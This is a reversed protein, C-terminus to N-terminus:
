RGARHGGGRCRGGRSAAGRRRGGPACGPPAVPTFGGSRRAGQHRPARRARGPFPGTRPTRDACFRHPAPNSSRLRAPRRARRPVARPPPWRARLRAPNSSRHSAPHRARRAAERPPPWRRRGPAPGAHRARGAAPARDGGYPRGSGVHEWGVIGLGDFVAHLLTLSVRWGPPAPAGAVATHVDLWTRSDATFLAHAWPMSRPGGFLYTEPEYVGPVPRAWSHGGQRGPDLRRLLAARLDEAGSPEAARFRARLGPPKHM